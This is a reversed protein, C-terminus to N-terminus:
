SGSPADRSDSSGFVQSTDCGWCRQVMASRLFSSRSGQGSSYFATRRASVTSFPVVCPFPGDGNVQNLMLFVSFIVAVIAATVKGAHVFVNPRKM